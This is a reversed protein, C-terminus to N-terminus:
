QSSAETASEFEATDITRLSGSSVKDVLRFLDDLTGRQHRAESILPRVNGHPVQGIRELETAQIKSYPKLSSFGDIFSGLIPRDRHPFSRATQSSGGTGFINQDEVISM